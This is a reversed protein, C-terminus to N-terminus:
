RTECLNRRCKQSGSCDSDGQCSECSSGGTAIKEFYCTCPDAPKALSMPGLEAERTVQMACQPITGAQIQIDLVDVPLAPEVSADGTVWGIFRAAAASSPKGSGDVAALLHIPGWSLYHGDRVNQKDVATATSDPFYAYKQKFGQFALVKLKDRHLDYDAAAVIGITSDAAPSGSVADIVGSTGGKDTCFAWKAAPVGIADGLMTQTGSSQNRCFMTANDTWPAVQGNQGFGFVFYGEEATIAKASSDKPAVFTMAQVPGNWNGVHSPRPQGTCSEAYVDSVGVDVHTGDLDLDCTQADGATDYYTATGVICAGTTCAGTPTADGLIANVGTCSGQSQYVLTYAPSLAALKGGVGKVFPAIASSGAVVIPNPLSSCPPNAAQASGAVTAALLATTLITGIRHSREM